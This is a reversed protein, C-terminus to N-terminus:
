LLTGTRRMATRTLLRFMLRQEDDTFAKEVKQIEEPKLIRWKKRPVKPRPANDVPNKDVIGEGRAMEYIQHLVTLDFDVTKPSYDMLALHIFTQVHRAHIDQIKFTAFNVNLRYVSRDYAKITRWRWDRRVSTEAAWREAYDPFSVRESHVYGREVAGLRQQEVRRAKQRTWGAEASGLTERVYRGTADRYRISFIRGRRKSERVEVSM